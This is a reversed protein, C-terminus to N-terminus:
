IYMLLWISMLGLFFGAYVQLANHTKLKLRSTAVLGICLIAIIILVIMDVKLQFTLYFILGLVGGIGVMHISIKWFFTILLVIFSVIGLSFIYTNLIPSFANNKFWYFTVFYLLTALFLPLIREKKNSLTLDRILNYHYLVPIITVPIIITSLFIALYISRKLDIPLYSLYTGSNFIIVVGVLPMLVPHLIVSIIKFVINRM